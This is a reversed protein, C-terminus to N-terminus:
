ARRFPIVTAGSPARGAHATRVRDTERHFVRTRARELVRDFEDRPAVLGRAIDYIQNRAVRSSDKALRLYRFSVSLLEFALARRMALPTALFRDKWKVFDRSALAFGHPGVRVDSVFDELAASSRLQTVEDHTGM